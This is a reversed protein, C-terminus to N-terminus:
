QPASQPPYYQPNSSAVDPAPQQQQYGVYTAVPSQLYAASSPVTTATMTTPVGSVAAPYHYLQQPPPQQFQPQQQYQPNPDLAVSQHYLQQQQQQQHQQLMIPAQQQMAPYYAQQQQHQLPQQGGYYTQPQDPSVVIVNADQAYGGHAGGFQHVKQLPGWVLTMVIECLVFFTMIISVFVFSWSLLCSANGECQFREEPRANPNNDTSTLRIYRALFDFNVYMNLVTPILMLFARLGKHLKSPRTSKFAYTYSFFLTVVTLIAIWDKWIMHFYSKRRISAYIYQATLLIVTITTLVVLWIRMRRLAITSM